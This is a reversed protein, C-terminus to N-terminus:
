LLIIEKCPIELINYVFSLDWLYRLIFEYILINLLSGSDVSVKFLVEMDLHQLLITSGM